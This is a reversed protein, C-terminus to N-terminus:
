QFNFTAVNNSENSEVVDNTSDVTITARHTIRRGDPIIPLTRSAGSSSSTLATMDEFICTDDICIQIRYSFPNTVDRVVISYGIDTTGDAAFQAYSISASLDPLLEVTPVTTPMTTPMTTPSTSGGSSSATTPPPNTPAPPQTPALAANLPATVVPLAACDGELRTVSAAVWGQQGNPLSVQVWSSDALRGLAPLTQNASLSAVIAFQTGAGGRVNITGGTASAVTCTLAVVEPTQNPAPQQSALFGGPCGGLCLTYPAAPVDSAHIELRYSRDEAALEYRAARISADSALITKGATEDFLSVLVGTDPLQSTITLSTIEATTDFHYLAVPTESSVTASIPQGAALEIAEPLPAGAQLSLVFQGLTGNEGSVEVTYTGADPLSAAATLSSLANPNPSALIEVGSPNLVHFRPIFGPSLALVQVAVSEGGSATFAFSATPANATLEGIANQGLQLPTANQAFATLAFLFFSILIIGFRSIRYAPM